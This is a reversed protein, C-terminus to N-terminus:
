EKWRKNTRKDEKRKAVIPPAMSFEGVSGFTDENKAIFESSGMEFISGDGCDSRSGGPQTADPKFSKLYEPARAGQWAFAILSKPETGIKSISELRRHGEKHIVM